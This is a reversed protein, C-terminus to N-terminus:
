LVTPKTQPKEQLGKAYSITIARNYIRQVTPTNPTQTDYLKHQKQILFLNFTHTFLM